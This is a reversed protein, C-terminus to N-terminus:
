GALFNFLQVTLSSHGDEMQIAVPHALNEELGASVDTLQYLDHQAVSKKCHPTNSGSELLLRCM